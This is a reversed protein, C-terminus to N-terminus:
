LSTYTFSSQSTARMVFMVKPFGFELQVQVRTEVEGAGMEGAGVEGACVEGQSSGKM